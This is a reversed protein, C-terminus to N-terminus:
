GNLEGGNIRHALCFYRYDVFQMIAGGLGWLALIAAVFIAREVEISGDSFIFLGFFLLFTVIATICSFLAWNRESAIKKPLEEPKLFTPTKM